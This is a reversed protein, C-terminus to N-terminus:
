EAIVGEGLDMDDAIPADSPIETTNTTEEDTLTNDSTRLDFWFVLYKIYINFKMLGPNEGPVSAFELRWEWSDNVYADSNNPTVAHHIVADATSSNGAINSSSHYFRREDLRLGKHAKNKSYYGKLTRRKSTQGVGYKLKYWRGGPEQTAWNTVYNGIPMRPIHNKDYCRIRMAVNNNTETTTQAVVLVKAKLVAYHRYFKIMEHYGFVPTAVHPSPETAERRVDSINDCRLVLSDPTDASLDIDLSRSYRMWMTRKPPHPFSPHAMDSRNGVLGRFANFLGRPPGDLNMEWRSAYPDVWGFGAM